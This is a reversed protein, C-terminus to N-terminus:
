STLEELQQDLLCIAHDLGECRAGLRLARVDNVGEEMLCLESAIINTDMLQVRLDLLADIVAQRTRRRDGMQTEDAM